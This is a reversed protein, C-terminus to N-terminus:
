KKYYVTRRKEGRKLDSNFINMLNKKTLTEFVFYTMVYGVSVGSWKSPAYTSV